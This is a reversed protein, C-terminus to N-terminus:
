RGADKPPLTGPAIPHGAPHINTFTRRSGTGQQVITEPKAGAGSNQERKRIREADSAPQDTRKHIEVM